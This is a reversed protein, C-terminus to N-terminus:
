ETNSKTTNKNSNTGNTKKVPVDENPMIIVPMVIPFQMEFQELNKFVDQMMKQTNLQISQTQEQLRKFFAKSQEPTLLQPNGFQIVYSNPGNGTSIIKQSFSFGNSDKTNLESSQIWGVNGNRPDAVKIWTSDKPTFIPIIGAESDITGVSKADTKPQDYLTITKAFCFPSFLLVVLALLKQIKMNM